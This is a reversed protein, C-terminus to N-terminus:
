IKKHVIKKPPKPPTGVGLFIFIVVRGTTINGSFYFGVPEATVSIKLKLCVSLHVSM